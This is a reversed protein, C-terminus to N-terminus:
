DSQWIAQNTAGPAPIGRASIQDPSPEGGFPGVGRTVQHGMTMFRDTLSRDHGEMLQDYQGRTIGQRLDPKESESM